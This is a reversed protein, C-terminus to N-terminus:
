IMIEQYNKLFKKTGKSFDPLHKLREKSSPIEPVYQKYRNIKIGNINESFNKEKESYNDYIKWQPYYPFGTLIEVNYYKSLYQSM